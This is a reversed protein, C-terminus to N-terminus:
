KYRRDLLTLAIGKEIRQQEERMVEIRKGLGEIEECAASAREWAFRFADHAPGTQEREMADKLWDRLVTPFGYHLKALAVVEQRAEQRTM